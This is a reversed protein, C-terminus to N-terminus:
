WFEPRSASAFAAYSRESTSRRALPAPLIRLRGRREEVHSVGKADDPVVSGGIRRRPLGKPDVSFHVARRIGRKSVCPVHQAHERHVAAVEVGGLRVSSPRRVDADRGIARVVGPDSGLELQQTALQM